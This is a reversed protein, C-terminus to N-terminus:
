NVGQGLDMPQLNKIPRHTPESARCYTVIIEQVEPHDQLWHGGVVIRITSSTSVLDWEQQTPVELFGDDKGWIVLCPQSLRVPQFQKSISADKLFARYQNLPSAANQVFRKIDRDHAFSSDLHSIAWHCSSGAFRLLSEPVMPLQMVFMYWSKVWQGKSEWLSLRRMFLELSLGNLMVMQVCRDGLHQALYMGHVVGLDHGIIVVKKSQSADISKLISLHDLLIADRGYRHLEKAPESTGSGRVHPAVCLFSARLKEILGLWVSADDPFGHCFFVITDHSSDGAQLWSTKLGRITASQEPVTSPSNVQM